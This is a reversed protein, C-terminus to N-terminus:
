VPRVLQDRALLPVLAGIVVPERPLRELAARIRGLDGSRFDALAALVPDEPSVSPAAGDAELARRIAARDLGSMSGVATFDTLSYQAAQELDGRRLGKELAGVYGSKLRSAVLFAAGAAAFMALNVTLLARDPM